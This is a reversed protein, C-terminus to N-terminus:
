PTILTKMTAAAIHELLPLIPALQAIMQTQQAALTQTQQAALTQLAQSQTQCLQLVSSRLGCFCASCLLSERARGQPQRAAEVRQRAAEVRQWAEEVRGAVKRRPVAHARSGRLAQWKGGRAVGAHSGRAVGAHPAVAHPSKSEQRHRHLLRIM